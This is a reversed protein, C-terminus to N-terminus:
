IYIASAIKDNDNLKMTRVGQTDRGLISVSDIGTRIVQGKQSIVILDSDGSIVRAIAIKGTKDTIKATKIGTGGRKQLRYQTVETRKGFGNETLILLYDKTKKDENNVIDMGVVKDNKKLTIGRVGSAPRGMPRIDEEKFRVSMGAETSIIVEAGVSSKRVKKLLDGKKLNIAILGSKRVNDFEKIATKKIVGQETIMTLYKDKDEDKKIALLSLIKDSSAIELFNGIGRGRASRNAEPIEYAPVKFVKGSDTFFFIEDHTNALMFHEVLDDQVTKMGLIGKGGRHQIKFIDPKVRKVYGGQTLTIITEEQPILDKEAIEEVKRALSKTRREDGFEEKVQLLEEKVVKKIKTKSALIKILEDILKKLAKLEEEIKGREMKALAALKMELIANAQIESLKFQKMLNTRANDRDSSGRIISIVKDINDLAKHLGELIHARDKAKQLEFNIRRVVVEEKHLLYYHIMEKLSLVKPQIGDVLSIMNLHFTKQLDTFKFLRNLVKRPYADRGLDIVIRLGDKDSEDRIDKIGKVKKLNVLKAFNEVLSSKQVQYPIETIIIQNRGKKDETIDAKGRIVVPGRGVSYAAIMEKRDFIVGGTPFDPGKIFEFLDETTADPNDVVHICADIVESLNHPPINTAMGVAIGLTGNLLLQPVPAPLVVPEQRTGDYNDAFNVTNKNIDRLMLGGVKSLKCESYRMAAAPDGDISGFNGQGHILPYRLSFDQALRVLTDYVATDSHPHYRGLVSGVATASKRFKSTSYLGEEHMTYLIRRQVPKLGDRVDPLARSVIVSMAYDIYSKEMEEVIPMVKIKGIHQLQVEEKKPM